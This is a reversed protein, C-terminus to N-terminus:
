YQVQPPKRVKPDINAKRRVWRKFDDTDDLCDDISHESDLDNLNLEARLYEPDYM